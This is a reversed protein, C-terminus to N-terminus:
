IGKLYKLGSLLQKSRLVGVTRMDRKFIKFWEPMCVM